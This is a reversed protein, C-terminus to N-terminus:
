LRVLSKAQLFHDSGRRARSLRSGLGLGFRFGALFGALGAPLYFSALLGAQRCTGRPRDRARTTRGQRLFLGRSATTPGGGDPAQLQPSREPCSCKPDREASSITDFAGLLASLLLAM